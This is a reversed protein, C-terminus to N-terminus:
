PSGGVEAESERPERPDLYCDSGVLGDCYVDLIGRPFPCSVEAWQMKAEVLEKEMESMQEMLSRNENQVEMNRKMIRDMETRLKDEVEAPQKDVVVKLESVQLKLADNLDTIEENEVKVHVLESALQVHEKDSTETQEELMRIRSSQISVTHKLGELEAERERETQVKEEWEATYASIMEPSLSVDCADQVLIDARYVGKDATGTSGFFGSELISSASPQEDIYADFLRDKLFASLSTMDKMELLAPANRRMIAVAFKLITSELGEEFILDYIRLVLQLPFRYAFLTLFWQTAYLQPPVGRRRLHCYVAPELDELLREFLFLSRHLGPMDHIFMERLGYKNMLKVLLTFAEVEDM